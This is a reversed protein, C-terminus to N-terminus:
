NPKTGPWLLKSPVPCILQQRVRKLGLGPLLQCLVPEDATKEAATAAKVTPFLVLSILQVHM